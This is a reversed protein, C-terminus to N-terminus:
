PHHKEYNLGEQPMQRLKQVPAAASKFTDHNINPTSFSNILV